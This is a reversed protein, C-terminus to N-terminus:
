AVAALLRGALPQVVAGNRLPACAADTTSAGRERHTLKWATLRGDAWVGAGSRLMVPSRLWGADLDRM